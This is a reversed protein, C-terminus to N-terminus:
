ESRVDSYAKCLSAFYDGLKWRLCIRHIMRESEPDPRYGISYERAFRALVVSAVARFGRFGGDRDEFYKAVEAYVPLKM